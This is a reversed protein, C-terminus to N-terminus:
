KTGGIKHEGFAQFASTRMKKIFEEVEKWNKFTEVYYNDHNNTMRLISPNEKVYFEHSVERFDEEEIDNM